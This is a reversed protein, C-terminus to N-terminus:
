KHFIMEEDLRTSGLRLLPHVRGKVIGFRPAGHRRQQGIGVGRFQDISEILVKLEAGTPQASQHAHAGVAHVDIHHPQGRLSQGVVQQLTKGVQRLNRHHHTVVTAVVAALKGLRRGVDKRGVADADIQKVIHAGRRLDRKGDTPQATLRTHVDGGAVVRLFVVAVFGIPVVARLHGRGVVLGNDLRCRSHADLIDAKLAIRREDVEDALLHVAAIQVLHALHADVGLHHATLM